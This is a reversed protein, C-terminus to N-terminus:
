GRTPASTLDADYLAQIAAPTINHKPSADDHFTVRQCKDKSSVSAIITWGLYICGARRDAKFQLEPHAKTLTSHLMKTCFAVRRSNYSSDRNFHVRIQGGGCDTPRTIFVDEFQGGTSRMSDLFKTVRRAAPEGHFKITYFKSVPRGIVTVHDTSIDCRALLSDVLVQMAEKAVPDQMNAKIVTADYADPDTTGQPQRTVYPTAPPPLALKSQCEEIVKAQEKNSLTADNFATTLCDLRAELADFRTDTADAQHQFQQQLHEHNDEIKRCRDDNRQDADHLATTLQDIKTSSQNGLFAIQSSISNFCDHFSMSADFTPNSPQTSTSAASTAACTTNPAPKAADQVGLQFLNKNPNNQHESDIRMQDNNPRLASVPSPDNNPRFASVPTPANNPRLASVSTPANNPWDPRREAAVGPPLAALRQAVRDHTPTDADGFPLPPINSGEAASGSRTDAHNEAAAGSRISDTGETAHGRRPPTEMSYQEAKKLCSKVGAPSRSVSRDRNTTPKGQQGASAM